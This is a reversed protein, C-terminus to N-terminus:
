FQHAKHPGMSYVVSLTITNVAAPDKTAGAPRGPQMRHWDVRFVTSEELLALGAFLGFAQDWAKNATPQQYREFSAGANYRRNWNWDAYVYGGSPKVRQTAYAAAFEDWTVDERDLHLVEAQIVAYASAGHWLKAKADVGWVTTRAGAAVNNTGRTGSLGLELGSRDHIPIFAALRAVGAPRKERQLDGNESDSELPDNSAGSSEREIRYSDGQLWDVSATLAVDGPLAFVKSVQLGTENLSEDGPLYAALVGFREAFPYVHPHLPNLKGFGVRYKGGKIALGAPLGRLMTFFGEELEVGEEALAVTFSGRAYPNLYDDFFFETEGPDFTVRKRAPDGEDDSWRTFPEGIVSINPNV